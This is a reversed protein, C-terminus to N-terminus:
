SFNKLNCYLIHPLFFLIYPIFFFLRTFIEASASKYFTLKIIMILLVTKKNNNINPPPQYDLMPFQSTHKSIPGEWGGTIMIIIIIVHETHTNKNQGAGRQRQIYTFKHINTVIVLKTNSFLLV